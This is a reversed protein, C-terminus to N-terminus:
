ATFEALRYTFYIDARPSDVNWGHGDGHGSNNFVIRCFRFNGDYPANRGYPLAMGFRNGRRQPQADGGAGLGTALVILTLLAPVRVAAIRARIRNAPLGHRFDVHAALCLAIPWLSVSVCLFGLLTAFDSTTCAKLGAQRASRFTRV